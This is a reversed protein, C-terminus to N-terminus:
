QNANKIFKIVKWNSGAKAKLFYLGDAVEQLNLKFQYDPLKSIYRNHLIERGKTDILSFEIVDDELLDFNIFVFNKAPNPYIFLKNDVYEPLATFDFCVTDSLAYCLPYPNVAAALSYCGTQNATYTGTTAGQLPIGNLYWQYLYNSVAYSMTNGNVNLLFGQNVPLYQSQLLINNSQGSCSSDFNSYLVYYFSSYTPNPFATYLTDHVGTNIWGTANTYEFWTYTGPLPNSVFLQVPNGDCYYGVTDIYSIVPVEYPAVQVHLPTCQSNWTFGSADTMTLTIDVSSDAIFSIVPTTEGTSWLYSVGGTVGSFSVSEGECVKITDVLSPNQLEIPYNATLGKYVTIVQSITDQGGAGTVRLTVQYTWSAPFEYNFDHGIYEFLGDGDFDWESTIGNQSTSDSFSVKGNNCPSVTFNFGAVPAAQGSNNGCGNSLLLNSRLQAVSTEMRETQGYSFSFPCTTYDMYNTLENMDVIFPNVGSTDDMETNCSNGQCIFTQSSNDPPTDCVMDGNLLCNQNFCGNQFTHYLGTYHGTEHTFLFSNNLYYYEIVVGDSPEGANFPFTSYGDIFGTINAVVYVNFYLDPSWRALNKLTSDDGTSLTLNTLPTIHRTIGNTPNGQPDVSALCFEINVQHGTSDYFLAANQFRLNLENVAQQVLSDAINEPGNNHMIHFVVPIMFSGGSNHSEPLNFPLNNYIKRNAEAEKFILNSNEQAKLSRLLDTGCYNNQSYSMFTNLSILLVLAILNRIM